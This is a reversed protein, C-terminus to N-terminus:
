PVLDETILKAAPSSIVCANTKIWYNTLGDLKFAGAVNPVTFTVGALCKVDRLEFNSAVYAGVSIESDQAKIGVANTSARWTCGSMEVTDFAVTEGIVTVANTAILTGGAGAAVSGIVPLDVASGFAKAAAGSVVLWCVTGLTGSAVFSDTIITCNNGTTLAGIGIGRSLVTCGAPVTLGNLESAGSPSFMTVLTTGPPIVASEPPGAQKLAYFISFRGADFAQQITGYPAAISGDQDGVPITTQPDVFTLTV